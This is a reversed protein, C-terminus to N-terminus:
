DGFHGNGGVAKKFRAFVWGKDTEKNMDLTFCSLKYKRVHVKGLNVSVASAM